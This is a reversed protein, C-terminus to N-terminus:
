ATTSWIYLLMYFSFYYPKVINKSCFRCFTWILLMRLWMEERDLFSFSWKEKMKRHKKGAFFRLVWKKKGRGFSFNSTKPFASFTVVSMAKKCIWLALDPMARSAGVQSRVQLEISFTILIFTTTNLIRFLIIEWMLM